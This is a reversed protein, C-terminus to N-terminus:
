FGNFSKRKKSPRPIIFGSHLFGIPFRRKGLKFFKIGVSFGRKHIRTRVFEQHRYDQGSLARVLPYVLYGGDKKLSM